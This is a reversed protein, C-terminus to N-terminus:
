SLLRNYNEIAEIITSNEVQCDIQVKGIDELLIFNVKGNTNKKDHKLLDLIPTIAKEDIRPM